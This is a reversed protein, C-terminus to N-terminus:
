WICIYFLYLVVLNLTFYIIVTQQVAEGLPHNLSVSSFYVNRALSSHPQCFRIMNETWETEPFKWAEHKKYSLCVILSGAATGSTEAGQSLFGDKEWNCELTLIARSHAM